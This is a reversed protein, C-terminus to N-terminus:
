SGRESEWVSLEGKGAGCHLYMRPHPSSNWGCPFRGTEREAQSGEPKTVQNLRVAKATRWGCRDGPGQSFSHRRGADGNWHSVAVGRHSPSSDEGSPHGAPDWASHPWGEDTSMAQQPWHGLGGVEQRKGWWVILTTSPFSSQTLQRLKFRYHTLGLTHKRRRLIIPNSWVMSTTQICGVSRSPGGM